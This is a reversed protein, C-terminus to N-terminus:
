IFHFSSVIVDDLVHRRGGGGGAGWHLGGFRTTAASCSAHVLTLM